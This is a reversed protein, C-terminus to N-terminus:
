GETSSAAIRDKTERPVCTDWRFKSLVGSGGCLRCGILGHCSTCVAYPKLCELDAYAQDLRAQLSNHNVTAALLDGTDQYRRVAGRIRSLATILNQAEQRRGWIEMLEPPVEQGVEDRVVEPQRPEPTQRHVQALAQCASVRPHEAMYEEVGRRVEPTERAPIAQENENCQFASEPRASGSSDNPSDPWPENQPARPPPVPPLPRPPPCRRTKGDMGVRADVPIEGLQRRVDAVLHNSVGVHEAIARDSKEPHLALAMEVARRKDAPTRRLGHTRNAGCAYWRALTAGGGYALAQMRDLGARKAAHYRHFGDALWATAGECFVVVPPFPFGAAMDEAYEAVVDEDIEVRPQTQGDIRIRSLEVEIPEHNPADM